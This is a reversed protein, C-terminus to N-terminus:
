RTYPVNALDTVYRHIGRSLVEDATSLNAREVYVLEVQKRLESQLIGAFGKMQDETHSVLKAQNRRLDDATAEYVEPNEKNGSYVKGLFEGVKPNVSAIAKKVWPLSGTTLICLGEESEVIEDMATLADHYLVGEFNVNVEGQLYANWLPDEVTDIHAKKDELAKKDGRLVGEYNAMNRAVREFTDQGAMLQLYAELVRPGLVHQIVLTGWLDFSHVPKIGSPVFIYTM